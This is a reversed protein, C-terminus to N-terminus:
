FHSFPQIPPKSELFVAPQMDVVSVLDGPHDDDGHPASRM